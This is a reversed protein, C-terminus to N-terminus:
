YRFERIRKKAEDRTIRNQRLAMLDEGKLRLYLRRPIPALPNTPGSVMSGVSLTLTQGEKIQLAFANDLMVDLLAQRTFESYEQEPDTMPPVSPSPPPVVPATPNTPNAIRSLPDPPQTMRRYQEWIQSRVPAIGPVEVLFLMGEGEPLILGMASAPAEPLLEIERVFQSAREALKAGAQDVAARLSNEFVRVQRLTEQPVQTPVPTQAAATAAAGVISIIVISRIFV